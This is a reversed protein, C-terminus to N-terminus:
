LSALLNSIEDPTSCSITEGRKYARYAQEIRKRLEPTVTLDEKGVNLLAYIQNRRRIFVLEGNDARDFSASLNNRYDRVSLAEMDKKKQAFIAVNGSFVLFTYM